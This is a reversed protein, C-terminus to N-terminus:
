LMRLYFLRNSGNSGIVVTRTLSLGLQLLAVALRINGYTKNQVSPCTRGNYVHWFDSPCVQTNAVSLADLV